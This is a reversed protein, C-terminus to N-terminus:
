GKLFEIRNEHMTPAYHSIQVIHVANGVANNAQKSKQGAKNKTYSNINIKKVKKQDFFIM